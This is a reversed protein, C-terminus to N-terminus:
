SRDVFKHFTSDSGNDKKEQYVMALNNDEFKNKFQDWSITDFRENEDSNQPFHIRLVGDGGQDTDKIIAPVGQRSEAWQKIANVDTTKKSESMVNSSITQGYFLNTYINYSM